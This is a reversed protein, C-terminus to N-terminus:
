RIGQRALDQVAQVNTKDVIGVGTNIDTPTLAYRAALNLLTVAMFSQMYPQQDITFAVVGAEILQVTLPSLDFCGVYLDRREQLLGVLAHTVVPGLSFLASVDKHRELYNRMASVALAPDATMDVVDVNLGKPELISRLGRLRAMIGPVGFQQAAVCVRGTLKGSALAQRAARQGATFDNMGIYALFPTATRDVETPISNFIVVPIGRQKAAKLSPTFATPHSLTTAIGDPEALIAQELLERQRMIDNPFEPALIHLDVGLRQAADRAGKFEIGWFPDGAGAHSILFITPEKAQAPALSLLVLLCTALAALGCSVSATKPATHPM